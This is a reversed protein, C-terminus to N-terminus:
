ESREGKGRSERASVGSKSPFASANQAAQRNDRRPSEHTAGTAPAGVTPAPDFAVEAEMRMDDDEANQRLARALYRITRSHRLPVWVSVQTLGRARNQRVWAPERDPM